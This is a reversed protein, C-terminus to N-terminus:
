LAGSDKGSANLLFYFAALFISMRLLLSFAFWLGPRRRFLGYRVTWWLGSFFIGGLLLGAGLPLALTTLWIIQDLAEDMPSRGNSTRIKIKRRSGTGPM